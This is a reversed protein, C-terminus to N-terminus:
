WGLGTFHDQVKIGTIIWEVTLLFPAEEIAKVLFITVQQKETKDAIHDKPSLLLRGIV